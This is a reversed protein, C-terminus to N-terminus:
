AQTLTALASEMAPLTIKLGLRKGNDLLRQIEAILEASHQGDGCAALVRGRAIFFESWPLPEPRTYDELAASYLEASEWDRSDLSAEIAYRLFWLHNHGVAGKRLIEAGETLAAHRETPNETTFALHGLIVGGMFSVGTERSVALARHLLDLGESLGSEARAVMALDNLGVAEFRRAGLQRALNLACQAHQKARRFEGSTRFVMCAANHAIIEARHHGVRGALDVAARSAALAGPFDNLYVLTHAVMSLNAVEVRGAGCGRALEVCESFNRNASAMRGRAYEADGLGGLTRAQTEPAGAKRALELALQHEELCENLRGLPFFLNGRLHHIRASEATLNANAAVAAARDLLAFAEEFRDTVRMGAAIGLWARCRQVDADAAALAQELAAISEPISGLDHLLEGRFLSLTTVDGPEKALALGREVLRLARETRYEMAQARAAELFAKPAGIDGARDLHEAWLTLDRSSFWDAARQHLDRRRSRLLTEYISEQVLAHAFLFSGGQPRVLFHAVLGEPTYDPQDLLYCLADRGFRQGLVSAAEV